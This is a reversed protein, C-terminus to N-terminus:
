RSAGDGAAVIRVSIERESPLPLRILAPLDRVEFEGSAVLRDSSDFTQWRYAGPELRWARLPVTLARSEFNYLALELRRPNAALVARGFEGSAAPWTVAFTPYRDGRPTEGGFLHQRYEPTLPYYVRDTYIVESTLMDFNVAIREESQRAKEALMGLLEPRGSSSKYGFFADYDSRGSRRRWEYFAEPARRFESALQPYQEPHRLIEFTEGAAELWKSQGTLDHLALVLSTLAEQSSGSWQFYDWEADPKDWTSSGILYSGDASRLAPPFVGKPKGHATARMAAVWSDAWRALLEITARDRSFYAYWLTPGMARTNLHVDVAREPKPDFERCNFWSGRFRWQGDPQRTLWNFACAATEKLRARGTAEDPFAAAFLPQTDTTPESSHEVDSIRRDYGQALEGSEWLGTALRRLGAAAPDSGLGLAQPGWYRLIEVDDGWGGGLEGNPQQRREVWWRTIADMRRALRRQAVAWEPAGAPSAPIEVPWPVPQVRDCISGGPMGRTANLGLCSASIMQRVITQEPAVELCEEFLRATREIEPPEHNEAAIWYLARTVAILGERRSSPDRSLAIREGLQEISNRRGTRLNEFFPDAVLRRLRERYAPIHKTEFLEVPTTRLASLVYRPANTAISLERGGDLVALLSIRRLGSRPRMRVPGPKIRHRTDVARGESELEFSSRGQDAVWVFVEVLHSGQLSLRFRAPGEVWV